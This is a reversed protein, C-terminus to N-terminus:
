NAWAQDLRKIEFESILRYWYQLLIGGFSYYRRVANGAYKTMILSFFIIVIRVLLVYKHESLLPWDINDSMGILLHQFIKSFYIFFIYCLEVGSLYM